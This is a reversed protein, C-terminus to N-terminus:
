GEVVTATGDDLDFEVTIYEGNRIFKGLKKEILEKEEFVFEEKDVARMPGEEEDVVEEAYEKLADNLADPTKFTIRIKKM